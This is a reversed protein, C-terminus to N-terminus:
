ALKTKFLNYFKRFQGALIVAELIPQSSYVVGRRALQSWPQWISKM